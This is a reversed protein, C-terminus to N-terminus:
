IAKKVPDSTCGICNAKDKEVTRGWPYTTTSGARAVYEWESETPLRYTRGTKQSLWAAYGKADDWDLDTVPRRGRGLGRDDPKQKCGAEAICADWEEYTVERRGIYFQKRISVQHVPAEFDFMESSGMDFVGPPISIMEPCQSCDRITSQPTAPPPEPVAPRSAVKAEAKPETKAETKPETKPGTKPGPKPEPKADTKAEIQQLRDRAVVAFPGDPYSDLYAKFDAANNSGKITDWFGLEVPDAARPPAAPTAVLKRTSSIVLNEPSPSSEWPIQQDRTGQAVSTRVRRFVEKFSLGQVKAAKILETLFLNASRDGVVEGPVVPYIVTVGQIPPQSSLGRVRASVIQQWPNKRAADLIVVCGAPRSVILPDLILDIDIGETRVDAESAIKSDIALLFNRDQYQVAHGGYYVVATVGWGLKRTFASIAAEIETRKANEAYVVDFGGDRLVDAFARADGPVSDVPSQPYSGNGIVLAVPRSTDAPANQGVATVTASLLTLLAVGALGLKLMAAVRNAQYGSVAAKWVDCTKQFDGNPLRVYITIKKSMVPPKHPVHQHDGLLLQLTHTGAPLTLVTETQGNGLHIHNYDSPIPQDLPVMDADILLHHHGTFEKVVGAPAVGMEKLGIKVTFRQSVRAGDLPSHFYVVAGPASSTSEARAPAIHLATLALALGVMLILSSGAKAFPRCRVIM